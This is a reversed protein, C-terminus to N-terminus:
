TGGNEAMRKQLMNMMRARNATCRSRVCCAMTEALSLTSVEAVRLRHYLYVLSLAFGFTLMGPQAMLRRRGAFWSQPCCWCFSTALTGQPISLSIESQYNVATTRDVGFIQRLDTRYIKLYNTHCSDNFYSCFYILFLLLVYLVGHMSKAALRALCTAVTITAVAWMTTAHRGRHNCQSRRYDTSNLKRCVMHRYQLVQVM